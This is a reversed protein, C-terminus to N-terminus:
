SSSIQQLDFHFWAMQCCSRQLLSRYPWLHTAVHNFQTGTILIRGTLLCYFLFSCRLSSCANRPAPPQKLSLWCHLDVLFLPALVIPVISLSFWSFFSLYFLSALSYNALLFWVCDGGAMEGGGLGSDSEHIWERIDSHSAEPRIADAWTQSFHSTTLCLARQPCFSIGWKIPCSFQTSYASRPQKAGLSQGRRLAWTYGHDQVQHQNTGLRPQM